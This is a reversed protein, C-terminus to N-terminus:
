VTQLTARAILKRESQQSLLTQNLLLLFLAGELPMVHSNTVYFMSYDFIFYFIAGVNM